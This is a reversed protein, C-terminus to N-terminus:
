REGPIGTNGSEAGVARETATESGRQAFASYMGQDCVNQIELGARANLELVLPQGERNVVVDVGLYGLPFARAADVGIRVIESWFPVSLGVLKAGSEPHREHRRGRRVCSSVIGRDLSVGLGLGGAHLNARGGSGRTPARVMAMVPSHRHVLLRVDCLGHSSLGAFFEHPEVLEEILAADEQRRSFAGFITEAIHRALAREGLAGGDAATWGAGNRAGRVVLVGRGAAGCVPKVVFGDCAELDCLMRPIDILGRCVGLTRPVPVGHEMLRQKARVKDDVMRRLQRPNEHQIFLRNRANLGLVAQRRECLKTLWQSLKAWSM